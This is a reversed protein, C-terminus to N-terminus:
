SYAHEIKRTIFDIEKDTERYVPFLELYTFLNAYLRTSRDMQRDTRLCIKLDALHVATVASVSYHYNLLLLTSWKV